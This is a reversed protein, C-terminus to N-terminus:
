IPKIKLVTQKLEQVSVIETSIIQEPDLIVYYKCLKM